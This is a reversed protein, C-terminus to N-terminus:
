LGDLEGWDPGVVTTDGVWIGNHGHSLAMLHEHMHRGLLATVGPDDSGDRVTVSYCSGAKSDCFFTEVLKGLEPDLRLFVEAMLRVEGIRGYRSSITVGNVEIDHYEDDPMERVFERIERRWIKNTRMREMALASDLETQFASLASELKPNFLWVRPATKLVAERIQEELATRSLGSLDIELMALGSARVIEIKEPSCAHAVKIEVALQRNARRAVIDPQFGPWRVEKEVHDFSVWFAPRVRREFELYQVVLPPITLGGADLIMQKGLKHLMTEYATPCDPDVEHAFHHAIQGGKKAVLRCGCAPCRCQCELGSPVEVISVMRGDVHLGYPLEIGRM